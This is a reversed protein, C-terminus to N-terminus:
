DSFPALDAEISAFNDSKIGLWGGEKLLISLRGTDDIYVWANPAEAQPYFDNGRKPLSEIITDRETLPEHKRLDRDHDAREQESAMRTM